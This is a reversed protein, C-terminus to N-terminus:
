EVEGGSHTQCFSLTSSLHPPSSIYLFRFSSSLSLFILFLLLTILLHLSLPPSSTLFLFPPFILHRFSLHFFFHTILSISLSLPYFFFLYFLSFTVFSSLILYSFICYILIISLFSLLPASLYLTLCLHLSLCQPLYLHRNLLSQLNTWDLTTNHPTQTHHRHTTDTHTTQTHHRHTHRHTTDTHPTQTHQRHTTCESHPGDSTAEDPLILLLFCFLQFYRSNPHTINFYFYV